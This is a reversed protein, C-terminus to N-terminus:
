YNGGKLRIILHVNRQYKRAERWYTLYLRIFGAAHTQFYM